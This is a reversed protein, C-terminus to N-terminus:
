WSGALGNHGGSPLLHRGSEVSRFREKILPEVLTRPASEQPPQWGRCLSIMPLGAVTLTTPLNGRSASV